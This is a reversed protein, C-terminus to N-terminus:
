QICRSTGGSSGNSDKISGSSYAGVPEVVVVMVIGIVEMAILVGVIRENNSLSSHGNGISSDDSSKDNYCKGRFGIMVLVLIMLVVGM